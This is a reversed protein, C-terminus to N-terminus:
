MVKKALLIVGAASYDDLIVPAMEGAAIAGPRRFVFYYITAIAV